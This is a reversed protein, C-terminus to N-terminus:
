AAAATARSTVDVDLALSLCRVAGGAKQFEGVPTVVVDLGFAELRRGVRPPCAPMVVTSGVVVSNACFTLAEDLDLVIPDSVLQELLRRSSASFAAPAYMARGAGLPCFALDLHYLRPDVLQIPEVRVGLLRALAGSAGRDSRIGHGALLMTAAHDRVTFPLADGAGEQVVDGPLTRVEFGRASFWASDHPTEGQRERDHFRSVVALSGSVLGANATFVLDPLGPRPDMLEIQAGAAQLTRAVTEWQERARDRDVAVQRDMWPNIEYAVEFWEPPCM